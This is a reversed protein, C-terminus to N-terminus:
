KDRFLYILFMSKVFLHVKLTLTPMLIGWYNNSSGASIWSFMVGALLNKTQSWLWVGGVWHCFSSSSVMQDERECSLGIQYRQPKLQYRSLRGKGNQNCGFGGNSGPLLLPGLRSKLCQM